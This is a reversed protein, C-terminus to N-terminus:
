IFLNTALKKLSGMTRGRDRGIRRSRGSSCDSGSDLVKVRGSRERVMDRGRDRFRVKVM